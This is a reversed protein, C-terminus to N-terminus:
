VGTLLCDSVKYKVDCFDLTNQEHTAILIIRNETISMLYKHFMEISQADLNSTPEDFIILNSRSYLARAIAIRQAQGMSLNNGNEQIITNIGEPLSNIYEDLNVGKIVSEFLEPNYTLSMCINDKISGDFIFRDSPVYGLEDIGSYSYQDSSEFSVQGANANYLGAIIKLLTSKGSGSKGMIGIIKGKEFIASVNNLVKINEYCFDINSVRIRELIKNDIKTKEDEEYLKNIDELRETSACAMAAQSVWRSYSNLPIATYNTLQVIAILKSITMEGKIAFYAGVVLTIIFVGFSMFNNLFVFFGQFKALKIRIHKKNVYLEKLNINKMDKMNFIKFIDFHMFLDQFFSKISDEKTLTDFSYKQFVPALKTTIFTLLPIVFVMILAIKWSLIFM